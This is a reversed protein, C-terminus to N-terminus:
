SFLKHSFICMTAQSVSKGLTVSTEMGGLRVVVNVLSLMVHTPVDVAAGIVIRMLAMTIIKVSATVLSQIVPIRKVTHTVHTVTGVLAMTVLNVTVTVPCAIVPTWIVAVTVAGKVTSVMTVM